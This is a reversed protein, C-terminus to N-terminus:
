ISKNGPRCGTGCATLAGQLFMRYLFKNLKYKSNVMNEAKNLPNELLKKMKM